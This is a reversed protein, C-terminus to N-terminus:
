NSKVTKVTLDSIEVSGAFAYFGLGGSEAVKYRLSLAYGNVYLTMVEGSKLIQVHYMGEADPSVFLEQEVAFPMCYGVYPRNRLGSTVNVRRHKPEFRLFVGNGLFARDTGVAIGAEHGGARLKLDIYCDNPLEHTLACTFKETSQTSFGTATEQWAEGQLSQLTGPVAAEYQELVSQVPELILDGNEKQGLRHIVMNGAYGLPALDEFQFMPTKDVDRLGYKMGLDVGTREANWAMVYRHNGDSATRGAYFLFSDLTEEEPMEWPGYMNRSKVYHTLKNVNANAYLLYYWDGMRFMDPCEYTGNYAFPSYLPPCYQWEYLDKSKLLGVCGHRDVCNETKENTAVLMWYCQEEEVWFIKPDRWAWPVYYHNDSPIRLGTDEFAYPTDGVYHGIVNPEVEKFLHYKGDLPYIEGTGGYIGVRRDKSFHVFDSTVRVSWENNAEEGYVGFRLYYIYFRGNFYCPMVDGVKSDDGRYFPWNEMANVLREESKTKDM